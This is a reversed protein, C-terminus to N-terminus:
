AALLRDFFSRYRTLAVRLEETSVDDGRDWQRELDQRENSFQTALRQMVDAVLADAEEVSRRPEDVFSTQIEEWRSRLSNAQEMPLLPEEYEARADTRGSQEPRSGPEAYEGASEEGGLVARLRRETGEDVPRAPEGAPSEVPAEDRAQSAGAIDRTSLRREEM